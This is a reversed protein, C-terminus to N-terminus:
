NFVGSANVHCAGGGNRMIKTVLEHYTRGTRICRPSEHLEAEFASSVTSCGHHSALLLALLRADIWFTVSGFNLFYISELTPISNTAFQLGKIDATEL